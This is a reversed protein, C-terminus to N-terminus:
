PGSFECRCPRNPGNLCADLRCNCYYNKNACTSNALCDEYMDQCDPSPGPMPQPIVGPCGGNDVCRTYRKDCCELCRYYAATQAGHTSACCSECERWQALCDPPPCPTPCPTPCCTVSGCLRSKLRKLLGCRTKASAEGAFALCLAIMSAAITLRKM